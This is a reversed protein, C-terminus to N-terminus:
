GLGLRGEGLADYLEKMKVYRPSGSDGRIAMSRLDDSLRVGLKFREDPSLGGLARDFESRSDDEEGELEGRERLWEKGANNEWDIDDDEPDPDDFEEEWDDPDSEVVGGTSSVGDVDVVESLVRDLRKRLSM